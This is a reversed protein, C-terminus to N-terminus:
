RTSWFSTVATTKASAQATVPAITRHCFGRCASPQSNKTTAWSALRASMSASYAARRGGSGAAVSAKKRPCYMQSGPSAILPARNVGSNGSPRGAEGRHRGSTQAPAPHTASADSGNSNTLGGSIAGYRLGSATDAGACCTSYPSTTAPSSPASAQPTTPATSIATRIIRARPGSRRRSPQNKAANM